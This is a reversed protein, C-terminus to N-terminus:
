ALSLSIYVHVFLSYELSFLINLPLKSNFNFIFNSEFSIIYITATYRKLKSGTFISATNIEIIRIWRRVTDYHRIFLFSHFLIDSLFVWLSFSLKINTIIRQTIMNQYLINAVSKIYVLDRLQVKDKSWISSIFSLLRELTFSIIIM